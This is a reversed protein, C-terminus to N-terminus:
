SDDGNLKLAATGLFWLLGVFSAFLIAARVLGMMPEMISLDVHLVLDGALPFDFVPAVVATSWTGVWDVFFVFIGFPFKDGVPISLPALNVADVTAECGTASGPEEVPEGGTGVGTAEEGEPAGAPNYRVKVQTGPDVNSGIHPVTKSVGEPGVRPDVFAEGLVLPEPDLGLAELREAYPTVKEGIEPIPIQVALPDVPDLGIHFGEYRTAEKAEPDHNWWWGGLKACALAALCQKVIDQAAPQNEPTPTGTEKTPTQGPEGPLKSVALPKFYYGLPQPPYPGGPVGTCATSGVPIYQYGAPIGYRAVPSGDCGAQQQLYITGGKGLSQMGLISGASPAVFITKPSASEIVQDWEVVQEANAVWYGGPPSTPLSEGEDSGGFLLSSIKGGVKWGLEFSTAGLALIGLSKLVGYSKLRAMLGLTDGKLGRVTAVTGAGTAVTKLKEAIAIGNASNSSYGTGAGTGLSQIGRAMRNVMSEYHNGPMWRGTYEGVGTGYKSPAFYGVKDPEIYFWGPNPKPPV